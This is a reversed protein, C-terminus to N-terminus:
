TRTGRMTFFEIYAFIGGTSTMEYNNKFVVLDSGRVYKQDWIDSSSQTWFSTDQWTEDMRPCCLYFISCYGFRAPCGRRESHQLSLVETDPFRDFFIWFPHSSEWAMRLSAPNLLSISSMPLPLSHAMGFTWASAQVKALSDYNCDRKLFCNWLLQTLFIWSNGRHFNEGSSVHVSCVDISVYFSSYVVTAVTLLQTVFFVIYQNRPSGCVVNIVSKNALTEALRRRRFNSHALGCIVQRM